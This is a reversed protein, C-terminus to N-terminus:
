LFATQLYCVCAVFVRSHDLGRYRNGTQEPALLPVERIWVGVIPWDRARADLPLVPVARRATDLSLYGWPALAARSGPHRAMLPDCLLKALPTQLLRLPRVPKFHLCLSPQVLDVTMQLLQQDARMNWYTQLQFLDVPTSPRLSRCNKQLARVLTKYDDM